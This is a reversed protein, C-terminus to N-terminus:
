APLLNELHANWLCIRPLSPTPIPSMLLAHSVVHLNFFCPLDLFESDLTVSLYNICVLSEKERERKKKSWHNKVPSMVPGLPCKSFHPFRVLTRRWGRKRKQNDYHWLTGGANPPLSSSSRGASPLNMEDLIGVADGSLFVSSLIFRSALTGPLLVRSCCLPHCSSFLTILQSDWLVPKSRWFLTCFVLSPFRCLHLPSADRVGPGLMNWLLMHQFLPCVGSLSLVCPLPFGCEASSLHPQPPCFPYSHSSTERCLLSNGLGMLWMEVSNWIRGKREMGAAGWGWFSESPNELSDWSKDGHQWERVKGACRKCRQWFCRESICARDHWEGQRFGEITEM